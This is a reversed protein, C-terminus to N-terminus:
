TKYKSLQKTGWGIDFILDNQEITDNVFKQLEM